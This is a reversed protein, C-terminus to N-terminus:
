RRVPDWVIMDFTPLNGQKPPESLVKVVLLGTRFENTRVCLVDGSHLAYEKVGVQSVRQCEAYTPLHSPDNWNTIKAGDVAFLTNGYRGSSSFWVDGRGDHSVNMPPRQDLDQLGGDIYGVTLDGRSRIEVEAAAASTTSTVSSSTAHTAPPTHESTPLSTVTPAVTTNTPPATTTTAADSPASASSSNPAQRASPGLSFVALVLSLVSAIGGGQDLNGRNDHTQSSPSTTVSGAEWRCSHIDEALGKLSSRFM